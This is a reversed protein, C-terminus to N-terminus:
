ARGSQMTLQNMDVGLLQGAYHWRKEFPVDYLLEKSFPCVLWQDLKIETDLQAAEWAVFGLTVLLDTPGKDEAIARIIDNSTTVTVNKNIALSAHWHGPQKHIVFGRETQLPGGFLLPREASQAHLPQLHLQEFVFSLSYSLPHNIILGMGGDAQHACLYIVSHAFSPDTITPMAILLHNKLTRTTRM